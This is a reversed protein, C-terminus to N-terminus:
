ETSRAHRDAEAAARLLSSTSLNGHFNDIATLVNSASSNHDPLGTDIEVSVDRAANEVADAARRLQDAIRLGQRTFEETLKSQVWGPANMDTM